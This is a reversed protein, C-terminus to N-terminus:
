TPEMRNLYAKRAAVFLRVREVIQSAFCQTSMPDSCFEVNILDLLAHAEDSNRFNDDHARQEKESMRISM